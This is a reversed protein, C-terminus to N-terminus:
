SNVLDLRREVKDLREEMRDMRRHVGSLGEEVGTMRVKVDHMDHLVRDLKEDMRRLMKLTLNDPEEM